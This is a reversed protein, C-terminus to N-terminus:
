RRASGNHRSAMTQLARLTADQVLESAFFEKRGGSTYREIKSICKLIHELQLRDSKM